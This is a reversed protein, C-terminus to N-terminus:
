GSGIVAGWLILVNVGSYAGGTLANRLLGPNAANMTGWPQM